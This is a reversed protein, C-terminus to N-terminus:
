VSGRAKAIAEVAIRHMVPEAEDCALERYATIIDHLATLLEDRERIAATAAIRELDAIAQLDSLQDDSFLQVISGQKVGSCEKGYYGHIWEARNKDTTLTVNPAKDQYHTVMYAVPEPTHKATM